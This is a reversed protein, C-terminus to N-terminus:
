LLQEWSEKLKLLMAPTIPLRPRVTRGTVKRRLGKIVYELKPMSAIRPNGFGLAIQAHCVAALYSKVSGASLGNMYLHAMFACLVAEPVPFSPMSTLECFQIFRKEGSRYTRQTSAELGANFLEQVTQGLKTVDLRVGTGGALHPPGAPNPHHLLIRHM